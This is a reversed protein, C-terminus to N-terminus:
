IQIDGLIHGEVPLGHCISNVHQVAHIDIDALCFKTIDVGKNCLSNLFGSDGRNM